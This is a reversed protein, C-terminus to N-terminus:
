AIGFASYWTKSLPPLKLPSYARQKVGIYANQGVRKCPIDLLIAAVIIAGNPVYFNGLTKSAWIECCGKLPYSSVQTSWNKKRGSVSLFECSVDITELWQRDNLNGGLVGAHADFGHLGLYPKESVIQDLKKLLM